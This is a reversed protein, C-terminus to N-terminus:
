VVVSNSLKFTESIHLGDDFSLKKCLHKPTEESWPEVTFMNDHCWNNADLNTQMLPHVMTVDTGNNDLVVYGNISLKGFTENNKVENGNVDIFRTNFSIAEKECGIRTYGPKHGKFDFSANHLLLMTCLTIKDSQLVFLDTDLNIGNDQIVSTLESILEEQSFAPQSILFSMVHKIADFTESSLKGDKLIASKAKRDEKFGNDIRSKLRKKSVKFKAKLQSEDFKDVQLLMLKKIWLPFESSINLPKKPSNYEVFFKMRLYMTELSRNALGRDRADNHAVFDAIERFVHKGKSFARLRMFLSDIDNEDFQNRQIKEVLKQAKNKEILKM